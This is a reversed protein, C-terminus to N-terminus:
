GDSPVHYGSGVTRMRRFPYVLFVAKGLIDKEDIFPQEWIRSDSSYVRNDGLLFFHHKPVYFIKSPCNLPHVYDELLKEGNIYLAGDNRIIVSDKPLGIARKIMLMKYERSYFTIIDQRKVYHFRYIRKMLVRDGSKLTPELLNYINTINTINM